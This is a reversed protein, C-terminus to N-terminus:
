NIHLYPKWILNISKVNRDRCLLWVFLLVNSFVGVLHIKVFLVNM